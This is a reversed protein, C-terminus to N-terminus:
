EAMVFADILAHYAPKALYNEDFILAAGYGPYRNPVWSYEDTFGWMTFHNCNPADLCAQLVSQYIAAQNELDSGTVPEPIRVDLETIYVDLGLAAYRAMNSTLATINPPNNVSVHMQFGVGDIPINRSVMDAVLNYVADSKGGLGHNGYDNYILVATPDALRTRQFALDIYDEGIGTSWLTPRLGVGNDSIAENVVDWVQIQEQYRGIVTDIHDYLIDIMEQRTYNGNLLWDPQQQHWVLTHGHIEMDNAQAFAVIADAKAFNYGDPEPHIPGFKMENEPSLANFERALTAKYLFQCQIQPMNVATGIVMGENQAHWRLPNGTSSPPTPTPGPPLTASASTELKVNDITVDILGEGGLQLKLDACPDDPAGMTFTFQYPQMDTTLTFTEVGYVTWPEGGQAARVTMTRESTARADFSITYEFGNVLPLYRQMFNLDWPNDGGNTIDVFLEGALFSTIATGNGNEQLVWGSMGDAFTGNHVLDIQTPDPTPTLTPTATPTPSPTSTPSPTPTTGGSTNIILEPHNTAERSSFTLRISPDTTIFALSVLGEEIIYSSVDVEIWTNANIEGSTSITGGMTPATDYTITNEQWNNDTVGFVDIGFSSTDLAYLRLTATVISGDLGQVDFQLYSNIDPSTDALLTQILGYNFTPRNSLVAADAVSDFTFISGGGPPPTPTETATATPTETPTTGGGTEILLEPPNPSDKTRFRIPTNSTTSVGFSVWGDGAIHGTVDIEVWSGTTIAGSSNIISGMPPANNYTIGGAGTEIWSTDAVSRVDFGTTNNSGVFLRLTANTIPGDLNQVEFRLYGGQEPTADLWILSNTGYNATPESANVYSDAVPTFAYSAAKATLNTTLITFIALAFLGMAMLTHRQYTHDIM